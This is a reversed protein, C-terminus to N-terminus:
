SGDVEGEDVGRVALSVYVGSRGEGQEDSGGLRWVVDPDAEAVFPGLDGEATAAMLKAVHERTLTFTM